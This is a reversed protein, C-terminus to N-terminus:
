AATDGARRESRLEALIQKLVDLQPDTPVESDTATDASAKQREHMEDIVKNVTKILVFLAFAVILFNVVQTMLDGYGLVPVGAARLEAFSARNGSFGAPIKGLVLFHNAFDVNGVIAAILPMIVSETLSSVIRGFAAGIIVGVALDLVNGRSIFIKFEKVISM